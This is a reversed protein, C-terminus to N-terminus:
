SFLREQADMQSSCSASRKRSWLPLEMVQDHRSAVVDTKFVVTFTSTLPSLITRADDVDMTWSILRRIKCQVVALYAQVICLIDPKIRAKSIEEFTAPISEYNRLDCQFSQFRRGLKEFKQDLDGAWLDNPAQISVINAGAEALALTAVLGIGGTGGTVMATKGALSFLQAVALEKVSTM